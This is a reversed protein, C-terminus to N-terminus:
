TGRPGMRGEGGVGGWAHLPLFLVPGFGKDKLFPRGKLSLIASEGSVDVYM